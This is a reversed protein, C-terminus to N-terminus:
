HAGPQEPALTAPPLPNAPAPRAALPPTIPAPPAMQTVAPPMTDNAATNTGPQGSQHGIGFAAALIVVIFVAAAIWGWATNGARVDPDVKADDRFPDEPNRYSFDPNRYDSMIPRRGDNGTGRVVSLSGQREGDRRFIAGAFSSM